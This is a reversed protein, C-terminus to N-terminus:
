NRYCGKMEIDIFKFREPDSYFFVSSDLAAIGLHDCREIARKIHENDNRVWEATAKFHIEDPGILELGYCCDLLYDNQVGM